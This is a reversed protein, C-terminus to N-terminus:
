LLFRHSRFCQMLCFLASLKRRGGQMQVGTWLRDRQVLVSPILLNTLELLMKRMESSNEITHIKYIIDNLLMWENEQLFSM